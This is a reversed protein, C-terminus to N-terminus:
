TFQCCFVKGVLEVGALTGKADIAGCFGIQAFMAVGQPQVPEARALVAIGALTGDHYM